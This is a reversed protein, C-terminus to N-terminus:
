LFPLEIFAIDFGHGMTLSVNIRGEMTSWCKTEEISCCIFCKTWEYERYGTADVASSCLSGTCEATVIRRGVVAVVFRCKITDLFVLFLIFHICVTKRQRIQAM